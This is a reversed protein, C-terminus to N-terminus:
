TITRAAWTGAVAVDIDVVAAVDIYTPIIATNIGRTDVAGGRKRAIGPSSVAVIAVACSVTVPCAVTVVM